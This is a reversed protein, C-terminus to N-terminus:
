GHVIPIALSRCQGMTPGNMGETPRAARMRCAVMSVDLMSDVRLAGLISDVRLAGLSWTTIFNVPPRSTGQRASGLGRM